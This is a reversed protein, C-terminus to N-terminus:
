SNRTKFGIWMIHHIIWISNEMNYLPPVCVPGPRSRIQGSLVVPCMGRQLAPLFILPRFEANSRSRGLHIPRSCSLIDSDCRSLLRGMWFRYRHHSFEIRNTTRLNGCWKITMHSRDTKEANFWGGSLTAILQLMFNSFLVLENMTMNLKFSRKWSYQVVCLRQIVAPPM